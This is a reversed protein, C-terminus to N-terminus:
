NKFQYESPTYGFQKRFCESFYSPNNFGVELAIESINGTKHKILKAAENLRIRKILDVPSEGILVILKRYLLSRSVALKEAFFEVSFGSDAIYENIIKVAKQLFKKDVPTVRKEEIEFLGHKQFYEHIRERQELLNKIRAILEQAEFPKVIYDDAGTELGEIKDKLSTRATLLIIPIHSTRTGSKLTRCLNIGDMEPMMIDSIILDPIEDSSRNLGEKGNSAEVIKYYSSLINKIYKRVDYNDEIILLLPKDAREILLNEDRENNSNKFTLDDFYPIFEADDDTQKEKLSEEVIEDPQLHEKGLPLIIRFSSGTGVESEVLIKGKHLNVLEKTLSLGIGTGEYENSFKNDIQYFRDFIKDLQEESIGIGTDRVLIEVSNSSGNQPLSIESNILHPKDKTLSIIVNIRGGEPTFKIANSLINSLIKDIKDRDIYISIEEQPYEFKFSLKKQEAYAQFSGIIEKVVPILNRRTTQLKMKGMEIKSIELLQNVLRNLKGASRYILDARNKIKTDPATELIQRAPGLILTLPTRFEHSINTFFNTKIKDLEQLKETEEKKLFTERQLELNKILQGAQVSIISFLTLDNKSFSKQNKKNILMM